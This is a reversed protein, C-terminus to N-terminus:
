YAELEFRLLYMRPLAIHKKGIGKCDELDLVMLLTFVGLQNLLKHGKLEFMSLSQVHQVIMVNPDNRSGCGAAM